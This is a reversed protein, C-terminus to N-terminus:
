RILRVHDIVGAAVHYIAVVRTEETSGRRGIIREEDVVYEGVRIRTAIEARLNPSGRFLESYAARMADHGHMIATGSADEIVTDPAYCSLFADIDRRNYADVQREVPDCRNKSM